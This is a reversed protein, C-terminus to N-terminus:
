VGGALSIEEVIRAQEVYWDKILAQTHALVRDKTFPPALKPMPRPTRSIRAALSLGALTHGVLPSTGAEPKRLAPDALADACELPALDARLARLFGPPLAQEPPVGPCRELGALQADRKAPDSEKLARELAPRPLACDKGTTPRTVYAACTAPAPPVGKVKTAREWETM